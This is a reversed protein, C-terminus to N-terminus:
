VRKLEVRDKLLFCLYGRTEKQTLSKVMSCYNMVQVRNSSIDKQSSKYDVVIIEDEGELLLDIKYLNGKFSVPQEKSIRYGNSILEIFESSKLLLKVRSKIDEIEESKLLTGFRNLTTEIAIDLSDIDFDRLMELTYHLATGFLSAYYDYEDATEDELPSNQTGYISIKSYSKEVIREEEKSSKEIEGIELPVFNNLMEFDSGSEKKVVILGKKARTLAVYLKNLKDKEKLRKELKLIDSYDEDFFERKKSKHFFREIYLDDRYKAVLQFYDPPEKSSSRDLVIVYDFELGKSSHITMITAGFRSKTAIPLRSNEFEEIFESLESFKSAFELLNLLNASDEFYDFRKILEDLVEIPRMKLNFWEFSVEDPNSIGVRFLLNYIKARERKYLYECIEVLAIIKSYRNLKTATQLVTELNTSSARNQLEIGDENKAVLFTIDGVNVGEKILEKARSIANEFIDEAEYVAVYGNKSSEIKQPIFEPMVGEFWSNVSNIINKYSRYNRDLERVKLSYHDAVWNFLEEQGGRFRYLSQKPDGVYFFSRFDDQGAGSLIEDILPKFILFQVTSTDQFEDLLIHHFKSDLKFYLFDRKITKHLLRYAFYAVDDFGLRNLSRIKSIRVNKYHSYLNFLKVLLSEERARLYAKIEEKLTQFKDDLEPHNQQSKKFWGHEYITQHKFIDKKIFKEFSDDLNFIKTADKRFNISKLTQYFDERLELIREKIERIDLTKARNPPLIPDITYFNSMLAIGSNSEKKSLQLTLEVFADVLGERQLEDLFEIEMDGLTDVTNFSPDLGIELANSRLISSIFSDITMINTTSSLFIELVSDKKALIEDVLLGTEKSLLELFDVESELNLLYDRIRSQMQSAAKRTFTTALINSPMVGLFLLSIYRLSLAFTKGSGASASYVLFKEFEGRIESSMDTVGDISNKLPKM